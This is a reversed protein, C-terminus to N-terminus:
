RSQLAQQYISLIKSTRVEISMHRQVFQRANKGLRNALDSDTRLLVMAEYIKDSNKMSVLIGTEMHHILEPNGAVDTCIIPLGMAAAERVTGTLGEEKYGAFVFLDMTKMCAPIDRRYPLIIVGSGFKETLQQNIPHNPDIGVLLLIDKPFQQRYRAYAEILYPLGKREGANGVFGIVFADKPIGLESRLDKVTDPNFEELDVSGYVVEIKEPSINGTEVLVKKVAESVAIIKKVKNHKYKLSNIPNLPNTVGRNAIVPIDMGLTGFIAYDSARGKHSHILDFQHHRIYKRFGLLAKIAKIGPKVAPLPLRDVQVGPLFYQKLEDISVAPDYHFLATVQHGKKFLANALRIMQHAGGSTVRGMAIMQLIKM